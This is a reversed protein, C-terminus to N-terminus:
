GAIESRKPSVFGSGLRASQNWLVQAFRSQSRKVENQGMKLLSKNIRNPKTAENQLIKSEKKKGKPPNTGNRASPGLESSAQSM